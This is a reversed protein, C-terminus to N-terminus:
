IAYELKKSIMILWRTEVGEAESLALGSLAEHGSGESGEVESLVQAGAFRFQVNAMAAFLM